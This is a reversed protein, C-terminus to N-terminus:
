IELLSNIELLFQQHNNPDYHIGYLGLKKAATVNVISDDIFICENPSVHLTKLALTFIKPNPKCIGIKSSNLILKFYDNMSYKQIWKSLISYTGNNIVSLLYQNNLSELFTWMLDNKIYNNAICEKVFEVKEPSFAYDSAIKNWFVSENTVTGCQQDIEDFEKVCSVSSKILLPGVCDFLIAKIKM